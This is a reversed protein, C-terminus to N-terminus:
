QFQRLREVARTIDGIRDDGSEREIELAGDYEIERLMSLFLKDGVDGDGWPVETGWTGPTETRVADKIHVHRIWPSLVRVAEMPDGKDYLIM